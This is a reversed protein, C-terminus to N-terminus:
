SCRGFIVAVAAIIILLLAILGGFDALVAVLRYAPWKEIKVVLPTLFTM